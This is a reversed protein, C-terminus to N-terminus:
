AADTAPAVKKQAVPFLIAALVAITRDLMMEIFHLRAQSREVRWGRSWRSRM